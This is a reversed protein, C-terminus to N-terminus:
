TRSRADADRDARRVPRHGRRVIEVQEPPFKYAIAWRPARSVM